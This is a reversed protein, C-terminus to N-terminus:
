RRREVGDSSGRKLWSDLTSLLREGDVPKALYDNAGAEMCREREGVMAKATLAIVPLSRLHPIQRLHRMATYGDMEPMMVDMLVGHVDAHKALLDLAERGTEAVLVEAGKGHLLASLAYVTRMDDDAILITRGKLSINVGSAESPVLASPRAGGDNLHRIFLRVEDLLRQESNGDKLVVTDVYAQVRRAEDKTLARATYVIVPPKNALSRAELTQLLELGDADSLGLDLIMCDFREHELADLAAEASTVHKPDLNEADLLRLVSESTAKDDEVVLVRGSHAPPAPSLTRVMDALQARTAPKTLYGVAGLALGREAGDVASMFHVPIDATSPEHRLRDMVNWGDIDPLRVDLIIGQPRHERALRLGEEGTTAVLARLKRARILEVLHEAMVADDEIVLLPVDNPALSGRDDPISRGAEQQVVAPTTAPDTETNAANRAREPLLLTFTSGRGVVSTLRLEGGLLTASERAIALGLGTGGHRRTTRSELQEFAAFVRELSEEPIGPGTDSVSFALTEAPAVDNLTVGENPRGIRLSVEGRETFKIANGILNTLIREIRQGDSQISAPTDPAVEVTLPLGKEAALPTFLRRAQEAVDAIRVADVYVDQRGAEIKALDLLQNILGLLDKGASHVTKCYEVQKPTLNASENQSLIHSLLLMSNLPTRLEHSMNALFQTKYESARAVANSQEQVRRKAEELETNKLSLARRQTELTENAQRLEEQQVVLEQNNQRLEEEQTGLREAQQRTEELLEELAARSQAAEITIAILERVSSLLERSADSCPKFFAFEIIGFVKGLRSFPVFVLATAPAEGLSSRIKLYSVPPDDLVVVDTMTAAHGLLGEGIRFDEVPREGGNESLGFHTSLRLTGDGARLYAAGALAGVRGALYSLTRRCAERPDLAGRLEDSLGAHGAKLWDARDREAAHERLREAMRNAERAVDGLEGGETVPIPRGFEGKGFRALGSSLDSLIRLMSRGLWFSLGAVLALAGFGIVLHFRRASDSASRVAAFGAGLENRDLRTARDLLALTAEQKQQMARVAEPLAEGTEGAILRRSVDRTVNCYDVVSAHLRAADTASIVGKAADIRALLDDELAATTQLADPDQAAVADRMAQRLREFRSGLQPGAELKPILRSEVDSLDRAQRAGIALGGVIVMMFAVTTTGVILILKARFTAQM